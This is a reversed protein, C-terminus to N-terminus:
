VPTASATGSSARNLISSGNGMVPSTEAILTNRIVINKTVEASEPDSTISVM